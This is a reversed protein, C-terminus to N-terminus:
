SIWAQRPKGPSRSGSFGYRGQAAAKGSMERQELVLGHIARPAWSRSRQVSASRHWPFARRSYFYISRNGRVNGDWTIYKYFAIKLAARDATQTMTRM